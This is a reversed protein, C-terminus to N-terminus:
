KIPAVNNQTASILKHPFWSDNDTKRARQVVTNNNATDVVRNGGTMTWTFMDMATMTAWNMFNGSYQGNCEHNSNPLNTSPEFWGSDSKYDYCKNPDFYGLYKKAKIYCVGVEGGDNIRGKPFSTSTCLAGNPQDNYAAGGMPTEVSMNFLVNPDVSITLFLPTQAIAAYSTNISFLGVIIFFLGHRSNLSTM